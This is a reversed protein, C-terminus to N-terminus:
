RTVIRRKDYYKLFESKIKQFLLDPLIGYAYAKSKGPLPAIGANPWDDVNADSVIVWSRRDDLGLNRRVREPIEVGSDQGAPRSHTIPLIIVMRPDRDDDMAMAICAPREKGAIREDKAERSWVYDYRFVLGPEPEPLAM